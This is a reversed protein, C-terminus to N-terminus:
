DFETLETWEETAFPDDTQKQYDGANDDIDIAVENEKKKRKKRKKKKKKKNKKTSKATEERQEMHVEVAEQQAGGAEGGDTMEESDSVENLQVKKANETYGVEAGKRWYRWGCLALCGFSALISVGLLIGYHAASGADVGLRLGDTPAMTPENTPDTSPANTTDTPEMTPFLTPEFSPNTTPNVTPDNSPSGTPDPSPDNTPTWSPDATPDLTPELTPESTPEKYVSLACLSGTDSCDWRHQAADNTISCSVNQYRGCRMTGSVLNVGDYNAIVVDNWSHAAFINIGGGTVTDPGGANSQRENFIGSGESEVFLTSM